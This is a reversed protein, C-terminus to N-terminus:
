IRMGTLKIVLTIRSRSASMVKSKILTRFNSTGAEHNKNDPPTMKLPRTLSKSKLLHAMYDNSKIARLQAICAGQARINWLSTRSSSQTLGLHRSIARNTLCVTLVIAAAINSSFTAIHTIRTTIWSRLLWKKQGRKQIRAASSAGWAVPTLM